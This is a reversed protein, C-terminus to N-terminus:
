AAPTTKLLNAVVSEAEVRRASEDRVLRLVRVVDDDSRTGERALRGLVALVDELLAYRANAADDIQQAEAAHRAGDRVGLETAIDRLQAAERALPGALGLLEIVSAGLAATRFAAPLATFTAEGLRAIDRLLERARADDLQALADALSGRVEAPLLATSEAVVLAPTRLQRFAALLLTAAVCASALLFVPASRVAGVYGILLVASLMVVFSPPLARHLAHRSLVRASLGGRELTLAARAAAAPSLVTLPQRGRLVDQLPLEDIHAGLVDRLELECGASASRRTLFVFERGSGACATCIGVDLWDVRNCLVCTTSM